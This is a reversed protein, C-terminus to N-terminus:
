ATKYAKHDKPKLSKRIKGTVGTTERLKDWHQHPIAPKSVGFLKPHEAGSPLAAARPELQTGQTPVCLLASACAMCQHWHCLKCTRPVKGPGLCNRHQASAKGLSASPQILAEQSFGLLAWCECRLEPELVFRSTEQLKLDSSCEM